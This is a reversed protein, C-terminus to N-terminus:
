LVLIRFEILVWPSFLLKSPSFYIPSFFTKAKDEASLSLSLSHFEQAKSLSLREGNNADQCVPIKKKKAKYTEM